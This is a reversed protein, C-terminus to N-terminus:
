KKKPIFLNGPLIYDADNTIAPLDQVPAQIDVDETKQFMNDNAGNFNHLTYGNQRLIKVIRKKFYESCDTGFEECSSYAKQYWQLINPFSDSLMLKKPTIIGQIISLLKDVNSIIEEFPTDIKEALEAKESDYHKSKVLFGALAAGGFALLIKLVFPVKHLLVNLLAGMASAALISHYNQKKNNQPYKIYSKVTLPIEVLDLMDLMGNRDHLPVDMAIVEKKIVSHLEERFLHVNGERMVEQLHIKNSNNM